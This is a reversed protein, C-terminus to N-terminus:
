TAASIPARSPAAARARPMPRCTSSTSSRSTTSRSCSTADTEITLGALADGTKNCFQVGNADHILHAIRQMLSANYDVDPMTRDVPDIADLDHGGDVLPYSTSQRVFDVQNRASMLRAIMPALDKVRNDQLADMLDETLGPVALVRNLIVMLDDYLVSTAPVVAEPHKKGRDSADLMAGIFRATPSEYNNLLTATSQFTQDANPDGVLQVFAHALDLVPSQTTDFGNYTLSGLMGGASDMYLETKSARPGMLTGMGWVLGLTTDKNPDMLNLTERALGGFVTGDLNLYQYLTTSANAATLARGLPDRPAADTVGIEPFPSAVDIPMGNGDVFHGMADVDALGDGDMDVFPPQVKGSVTTAMALGRYDRTVLPRASGTALDPHTSEMLNLALRLTREPDNPTAVPQVTGLTMSAATLLQKWEAEATGGPAILALTKGMFDDINPYNVITHVLGAATKTPRYGDRVALRSLAPGFDPDQSMTGLLDGLSAIATEMTGDDSLPLLQELFAELTDLFDKPTIADVTAILSPRQTVITTLKAPANAPPAAQQVCVSNGLAGSVDVTQIQGAAKQALQGTYAVRQCSERYVIEGFSSYTDVTRNTDLKDCGAAGAVVFLVFTLKQSRRM